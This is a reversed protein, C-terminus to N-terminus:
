SPGGPLETAETTRDPGREPMPPASWSREEALAAGALTAEDASPGANAA